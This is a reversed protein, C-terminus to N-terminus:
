PFGVRVGVRTTRPLGLTRLPTRGVDQEADLTNEMAAFVEARRGVRWGARADMVSAGGLAFVNRDDDFQEGVYRWDLALRLRGNAARAGIAHQVRAVQPVRLGALPGESFMSDTYASAATMVLLRSLRWEAEVEAGAARIRAANQRERLIVSGSSSLTVNVIADDVRSWFGLARLTVAGTTWAAGGEVGRAQEPRLTPNADTVVNGVRFGRYLENITPGRFGSQFAARLRLPGSPAYTAWVKPNLVIHRNASGASWADARLGGGASVRSWHRQAQAAGSATFQHADTRNPALATGTFSFPTETLDASVYRVAAQLGLQASRGRTNWWSDAQAGASTAGVVQASTQRESARGALVASFTQEYEQSSAYASGMWVGGRPAEASIRVSAVSVRTSNVQVPTGNTRSEVFHSGRLTVEAAGTAADAAAHASAHRSGAATDISGRAEPAVTVFGDTTFGEASGFLMGRRHTAGGYVSVRATADSGAEVLLRAGQDQASRVSIVGGLADAGYIDGAAGRAVSAEQLAVAPVRNWYVWGGVPDNLPIGDALVLARSSGSAALGRLTAGQTTPNAVRSSSRRFLSFGPVARLADDLTAAPVTELEARGLTTVAAPVAISPGTGLVTVSESIRPRPLEAAQVVLALILAALDM